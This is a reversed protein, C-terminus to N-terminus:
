RSFGLLLLLIMPTNTDTTKKRLSDIARYVLKRASKQNMQLLQSIEKYSMDHMYRLYVAERQRPTLAELLLRVREKLHEQEEHSILEDLITVTAIFPMEKPPDHRLRSQKRGANILSNRLSYLLYVKINRVHSLRAKNQYIHCFIDHIVDQCTERDFGLSQGYSLMSHISQRYIASFAEERDAGHLFHQWSTNQQETRDSQM